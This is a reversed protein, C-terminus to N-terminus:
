GLTFGWSPPPVLTPPPPGAKRQQGGPRSGRHGFGQGYEFDIIRGYDLRGKLKQQCFFTLLKKMQYGNSFFNYIWLARAFGCLRL